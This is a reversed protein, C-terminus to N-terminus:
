GVSCGERSPSWTMAVPMAEKCAWMAPPVLVLTDAMGLCSASALELFTALCDPIGFSANVVEEFCLDLLLTQIRQKNSESFDSARKEPSSRAQTKVVETIL